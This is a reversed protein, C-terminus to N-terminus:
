DSMNDTPRDLCAEDASINLHGISNVLEEGLDVLKERLAIEIDAASDFKENWCARIVDGVLLGDTDPFEENAYKKSIQKETMELFPAKWAM